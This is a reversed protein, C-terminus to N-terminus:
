PHTNKEPSEESLTIMREWELLYLSSTMHPCLSFCGDALWSYLGAGLWASSLRLRLVLLFCTVPTLTGPLTSLFPPLLFIPHDVVPSVPSCHLARDASVPAFAGTKLRWNARSKSHLHLHYTDGERHAETEVDMFHPQLITYTCTRKWSLHGVHRRLSRPCCCDVGLYCGDKDIGRSERILTRM